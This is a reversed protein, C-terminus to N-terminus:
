APSFTYGAHRPTVTYTGNALGSFSYAGSSNTTTTASSTGSLTVTAGNGAATPGITGSLSFTALTNKVTVTVPASTTSNGAADKATVTLTHTGNSTQTTDWSLVYPAATEAAGTNVGDVQFQVSSVGVNDAATATVKVAGLVTAGSAPATLSITPATT